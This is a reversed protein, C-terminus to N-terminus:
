RKEERISFQSGVLIDITNGDAGNRHFQMYYDRNGGPLATHLTFQPAPLYTGSGNLSIPFGFQFSLPGDRIQLYGDLRGSSYILFTSEFKLISGNLKDFWMGVINYDGPGPPIRLTTGLSGTLTKTVGYTEIYNTTVLSQTALAGQGNFGASNRGETVNAGYEGPRLNDIPLYDGYLAGSTAEDSFLTPISSAAVKIRRVGVNVGGSAGETFVRVSGQYAGPPAILTARSMSVWQGGNNGLDIRGSTGLGNGGSDYWAIDISVLGGALAAYMEAQLCYNAGYFTYFKRSQMVNTGPTQCYAFPGEISGSSWGWGGYNIWGDFQLTFGGNYLVNAPAGIVTAIPYTTTAWAGQGTVGGATNLITTDAWPDNPGDTYPPMVTQGVPVIGMAPETVFIYPDGGGNGLMRIMLGAYASVPNAVTIIGGVLDFNAPNGGQGGGERGGSFPYAEYMGGASDYLLLYVQVDCRHHAVLARVYVRDGAKVPMMYKKAREYDPVSSQWAVGGAVWPQATAFADFYQGVGFPYQSLNAFLVNRMGSWGGLNYSFTGTCATGNVPTIAHSVPGSPVWGKLGQSLNSFIVMNRGTAAYANAVELATLTSTALAGQGTINAATHTLTVDAANFSNPGPNFAPHTIQGTPVGAVYPLALSGGFNGTVTCNFYLQFFATMAGPPVTAMAQKLTGFGTGNGATFCYSNTITSGAQDFYWVYCDANCGYAEVQAQVSLQEGATVRFYQSCISWQHVGATGNPVPYANIYPRGQYVGSVLVVSPGNTTYRWEGVGAEFLSMFIRNDGAAAVLSNQVQVVTLANGSAIPSQGTIGAATNNLTVDAADFSNPGPSYEPFTNQGGSAGTVMPKTFAGSFMGSGAVSVFIGQLLATHAGAPATVFGQRLTGYYTSNPATAWLVTPVIQANGADYFAINLQATCNQTEIGTQLALRQGPNVRFKRSNIYIFQGIGSAQGVTKIYRTGQATGAEGVASAASVNGAGWNALGGEMESMFIHNVNDAPVLSNNIDAETLDSTALDGQGEIGAATNLATVDAGEQVTGLFQGIPTNGPLYIIPPAIIVAPSEERDWQYIAPHEERLTMPVVGDFRIATEVVRFLKEVFGEPKFSFKIVSGKQVKWAAANFNAVFTGGFQQRQLRQKALREAQGQNQVTLFDVSFMRDIGDRSPLAAERYEAPQYLATPYTFNGRVINFGDSLPQTQIWQFNDLVDHETLTADPTALDNHFVTLRLFGDQDDLDANMSSKFIDTVNLTQDAESFIGDSRYRPDYGGGALLIPEDCFNASDIFSRWNIRKPPIGKGVSLKWALTTPNQIRWGLLYTALQCAPNRAHPGYTWSGQNDARMAGAGGPQTSDQRPDYCRLGEGIITIRGPISASFPSETKKSNGTAKFVMHVYACGTYRRNAGMRGSINIANAPTGVTRVNITLYGVYDGYVTGGAVWDWAKKDDFWIEQVNEVQHAAIVLFRHIYDKDAGIVEQDRLDTAMATKGFVLTRPARLSMSVNLRDMTSPSQKPAKPKPALLSAGISLAVAALSAYTAVTAIAATTATAAILGAGVAAGVGTAVLAVVAVAIAIKGLTKGL